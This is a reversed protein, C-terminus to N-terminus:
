KHGRVTSGHEHEKSLESSFAPLTYCIKWDPDQGGNISIKLNESRSSTMKLLIVLLVHKTNPQTIKM